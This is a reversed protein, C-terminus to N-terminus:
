MHGRLRRRGWSSIRPQARSTTEPCPELSWTIRFRRPGTPKNKEHQCCFSLPMVWSCWNKSAGWKGFCTVIAIHCPLIDAECPTPSFLTARQQAFVQDVVSLRHLINAIDSDITLHAKYRPLQSLASGIPLSQYDMNIVIVTTFSINYTLMIKYTM